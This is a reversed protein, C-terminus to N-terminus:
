HWIKQCTWSKFIISKKKISILLFFKSASPVSASLLHGHLKKGPRYCQFPFSSQKDPQDVGRCNTNQKFSSIGVNNTDGKGPYEMWLNSYILDTKVILDGMTDMKIFARAM